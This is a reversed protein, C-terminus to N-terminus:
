KQYDSKPLLNVLAWLPSNIHTIGHERLASPGASYVNIDQKVAEIAQLIKKFPIPTDKGTARSVIMANKTERVYGFKNYGPVQAYGKVQFAELIKKLLDDSSLM